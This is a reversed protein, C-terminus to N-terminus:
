ECVHLYGFLSLFVSAPLVGICVNVCLCMVACVSMYVRVCLCVSAFCVSLYVILYVSQSARICVHVGM